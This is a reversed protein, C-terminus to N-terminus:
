AQIQTLEGAPALLPVDPQESRPTRIDLAEGTVQFCAAPCPRGHGPAQRRDRPGAPVGHLLFQWIM